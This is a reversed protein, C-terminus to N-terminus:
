ELAWLLVRFILGLALAALLAHLMGRAALGQRWLSYAGFALVCGTLVLLSSALLTDILINGTIEFRAGFIALAGVLWMVGLLAPEPWRPWGAHVARLGAMLLCAFVVCRVGGLIPSWRPHAPQQGHLLLGALDRLCVGIWLSFLMASLSFM